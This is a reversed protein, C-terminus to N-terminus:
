AVGVPRAKRSRASYRGETHVSSAARRASAPIGSVTVKAVFPVNALCISCRAKTAPTGARHTTPSVTYPVAASSRGHSSASRHAWTSATGFVCRTQIPSRWTAAAV